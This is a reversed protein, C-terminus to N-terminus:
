DNSKGRKKMFNTAMSVVESIVARNLVIILIALVIAFVYWCKVKLLVVVAEAILLLITAVIKKFNYEIKVFQRTNITRFIWLVTYSIATAIAAGISGMLKLLILNFVFNVVAAVINTVFAMKTKKSATYISGLFQALSFISTAILLIPMYIWAGWFAEGSIIKIALESFPIIVASLIFVFSFLKDFIEGYFKVSEKKNIEKNASIQWADFFIGVLITVISPIKNAISYVGNVSAGYSSTIMIRDLFSIIWWCVTNPILPLSFKLMKKVLAKNINKFNIYGIVKIMSSLFIISIVNAIIYGTLYGHVGMNFKVLLLINTLITVLVNLVNDATYTKLRGIARTFQLIVSRIFNTIVYIAVLWIYEYKTFGFIVGALVLFIGANILSVFLGVSFVEKPNESEEMSYRFVAEYITLSILPIILTAVTQLIDIVGYEYDTLVRTYFPILLFQLLKTSFSGIAFIGINKLLEKKKGM